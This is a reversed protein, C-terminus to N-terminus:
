RNTIFTYALVLLCSLVTSGLGLNLFLQRRMSRQREPASQMMPVVALVPLNLVTQVEEDTKFSRDRFELLVVLGLGLALGVAM